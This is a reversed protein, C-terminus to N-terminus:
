IGGGGTLSIGDYFRGVSLNRRCVVQPVAALLDRGFTQKTTVANRGESECWRRWGAYLDDVWVRHGAGVVCCDRVFAGVPSALDEMDHVADEVSTPQVFHGRERLRKWGEIAWNLIGPLEGLLKRTLTHDEHGYFSETLKLMMFRGALAGSADTMRPLENTLFVFRTPLKMTLSTKHKRDITLTDEGSICLLREVVTQINDGHFRADSVVAMSKGILPQLGFNGALSGTTPGAVNDAGILRTLVRAITGKGSRKPGVILLMKQQTTDGTLCYGFWEQLLDLAQVDDDFLQSLFEFWRDPTEADPDPDYDLASLTFLNPTPEIRRMTPLHLTHTLCPLLEVPDPQDAGSKLWSPTPTAVDLHSVMRLSDLAANVTTPNAPFDKPDWEHTERNYVMKVADHMWPLLQHRLGEQIPLAAIVSRRTAKLWCILAMVGDFVVSARNRYTMIRSKFRTMWRADVLAIFPM